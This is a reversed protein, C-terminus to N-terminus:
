QAVIVRIQGGTTASRDYYVTLDYDSALATLLGEEGSYWRDIAALYVEVNESVPLEYDRAVVYWNGNQSFFDSIDLNAAVTLKSSTSVRKYNKSYGELAIGGYTGSIVQPCLYKTSTGGSNTVTVANNYAEDKGSGLNIGEKDKYVSLKGYEYNNGTVNKLLIVDVQGASNLEYASVYTAALKDTWYIASFSSSAVGQEGELSYVYGSGSWEYLSCGPAIDYDGLTGEAINLKASSELLASCKLKNSYASVRVLGGYLQENAEIENSSITLGSGCLTISSGNASLVGTMEAKAKSSTPYAAAVKKDDTLLLTVNKGLAFADLSDWACELVDLTCGSVTITKAASVSPSASEIIGTLQYDSVCLTKSAADYYATDYITIDEAEAPAGNKSIKYNKDSIGLARALESAASKTQAVIVENTSVTGASLYVYSVNGNDDYFLKVSRGVASNIQLYGSSSYDSSSGAAIVVASSGVRYFSGSSDTIGSAKASAVTLEVADTDTPIFGTVKGSSGILLNGIEGEFEYSIPNERAYYEISVKGGGIAAAMIYGGVGGSEAETDLLIVETVSSANSVTQYYPKSAGKANLCLMNYFVKAANGRNIVGTGSVAAGDSLGIEAAFNVHDVPWVAGIDSSSYGLLRLAITVLQGGTIPDEPGFKGNGYGNVIGEAYALNVYGSFWEGAPVDDFLTKYSQAAVSDELGLVRVAMACVAARTLSASPEFIGEATGSVIGMSELVAAAVATDEDSIDEFVAGAPLALLLCFILVASLIRKIKM